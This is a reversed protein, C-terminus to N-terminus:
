SFLYALLDRVGCCAGSEVSEDLVSFKLSIVTRDLTHPMARIIQNGTATLDLPM